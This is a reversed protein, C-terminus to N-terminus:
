TNSLQQQYEQLYTVTELEIEGDCGYAGCIFRDYDWGFGYIALMISGCAPCKVNEDEIKMESM